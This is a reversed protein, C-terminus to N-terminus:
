KYVVIESAVIRGFGVALGGAAVVAGEVRVAGLEEGGREDDVTRGPSVCGGIM